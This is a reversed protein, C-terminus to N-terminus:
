VPDTDPHLTDIVNGFHEQFDDFHHNKPDAIKTFIETLEDTM